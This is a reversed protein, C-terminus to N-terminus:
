LAKKKWPKGFIELLIVQEKLSNRSEKLKFGFAPVKQV